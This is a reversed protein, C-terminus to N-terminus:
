LDWILLPSRDLALIIVRSVPAPPPPQSRLLICVPTVPPALSHCAICLLQWAAFSLSPTKHWSLVDFLLPALGPGPLHPENFICDVQVDGPVWGWPHCLDSAVGQEWPVSLSCTLSNAHTLCYIYCLIQNHTKPMTFFVILLFLPM